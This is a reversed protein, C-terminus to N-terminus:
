VAVARNLLHPHHQLNFTLGMIRMPMLRLTIRMSIRCGLTLAMTGTAVSVVLVSRTLISSTLM